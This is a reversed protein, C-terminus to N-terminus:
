THEAALDDHNPPVENAPTEPNLAKIFAVGFAVIPIAFSSSLVLILIGQVLHLGGVGINWKRLNVLRESTEPM